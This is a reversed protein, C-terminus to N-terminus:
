LFSSWERTPSNYSETERTQRVKLYSVIGIDAPVIINLHLSFIVFYCGPRVFAFSQSSDRCSIIPQTSPISRSSSSISIVDTCRASQGFRLFGCCSGWGPVDNDAKYLAFCLLCPSVVLMTSLAGKAYGSFGLKQGTYYAKFCGFILLVVATLAISAYLGTRASAIFFYASILM